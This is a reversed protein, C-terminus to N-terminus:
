SCMALTAGSRVQEALITAPPFTIFRFAGPAREEIRIRALTIEAPIIARLFLGMDDDDLGIAQLQHGGRCCLVLNKCAQWNAYLRLTM